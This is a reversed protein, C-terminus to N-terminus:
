VIFSIIGSKSTITKIAAGTVNAANPRDRCLLFRV